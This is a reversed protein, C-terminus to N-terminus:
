HHHRRHHRNRRPKILGFMQQLEELDEEDLGESIEITPTLDIPQKEEPFIDGIMVLPRHKMEEIESIIVEQKSIIQCLTLFEDPLKVLGLVAPSLALSIMDTINSVSTGFSLENSTTAEGKYSKVFNVSFWSKSMNFALSIACSRIRACKEGTFKSLFPSVTLINIHLKRTVNNYAMFTIGHLCEGEVYSRQVKLAMADKLIKSKESDSLFPYKEFFLEIEDQMYTQFADIAIPTESISSCSYFNWFVSNSCNKYTQNRYSALIDKAGHLAQVLGSLVTLNNMIVSTALQCLLASATM